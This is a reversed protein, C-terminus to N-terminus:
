RILAMSIRTIVDTVENTLWELVPVVETLTEGSSGKAHGIAIVLFNECEYKLAPDPPDITFWAIEAGEQVPGRYYGFATPVIPRQPPIASFRFRDLTNRSVVVSLLRHKDADDLDRLVSLLPPLHAHCRHYPQILEIQTKAKSSLSKIRDLPRGRFQAKTDSIPFQLQRENPPPNKGSEHVALAYVFHDLACRLAHICDGGILSWRDLPPANKIHVLISHRSGDGNQQRSTAFPETAVWALLESKLAALHENARQMKLWCGAFEPGSIM